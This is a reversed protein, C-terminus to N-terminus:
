ALINLNFSIKPDVRTLKTEGRATILENNFSFIFVNKNLIIINEYMNNINM